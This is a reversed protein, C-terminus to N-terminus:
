SLNEERIWTPGNYVPHEPNAEDRWQGRPLYVDRSVAGEELVPAVLLDNGLLFETPNPYIVNCQNNSSNCIFYGPM